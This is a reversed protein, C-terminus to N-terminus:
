AEAEVQAANEQVEMDVDGKEILVRTPNNSSYTLADFPNVEAIATFNFQRGYEPDEPRETATVIYCKNLVFGQMQANTGCIVNLGRPSTGGFPILVVSDLGNKDPKGGNWQKASAVFTTTKM